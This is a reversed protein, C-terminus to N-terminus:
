SVPIVDGLRQGSSCMARKLIHLQTALDQQTAAQPVIDFHQMYCLFRDAWSWRERPQGLPQM